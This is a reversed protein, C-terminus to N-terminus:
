AANKIISEIKEEFEEISDFKQYLAVTEVVIKDDDLRVIKNQDELIPADLSFMDVIEKETFIWSKRYEEYQKKLYNQQIDLVELAETTFWM